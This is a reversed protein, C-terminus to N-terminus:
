ESWMSEEFTREWAERELCEDEEERHQGLQRRLRKDEELRRFTELIRELKESRTKGPISDLFKILPEEITASLKGKM